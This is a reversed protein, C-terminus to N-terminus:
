AAGSNADSFRAHLCVDQHAKQGVPQPLRQPQEAPTGAQPIIRALYQVFERLDNHDVDDQRGAATAFQAAPADGLRRRVLGNEQLAQAELQGAM